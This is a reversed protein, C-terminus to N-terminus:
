TTPSHSVVTSARTLGIRRAQLRRLDAAEVYRRQGAAVDALTDFAFDLEGDDYTPRATETQLARRLMGIARNRDKSLWAHASLVLAAPRTDPPDLERIM